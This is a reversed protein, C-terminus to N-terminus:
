APGCRPRSAICYDPGAFTTAPPWTITSDNVLRGRFESRVTAHAGPHLRRAPSTLVAIREEGNHVVMRWASSDHQLDFLFPPERATGTWRWAGPARAHHPPATTPGAPAGVGLAVLLLFLATRM